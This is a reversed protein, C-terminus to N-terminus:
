PHQIRRHTVEKVTVLATVGYVKNKELKSALARVM